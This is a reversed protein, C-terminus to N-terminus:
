QENDRLKELPILLIEISYHDPCYHKGNETLVAGDKCDKVCCKKVPDGYMDLEM